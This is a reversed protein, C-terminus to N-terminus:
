NPLCLLNTQVKTFGKLWAEDDTIEIQGYEIDRITYNSDRLITMFERSRELKHEGWFAPSFEIIMTPRKTMLTSRLGQLVELESGETDIKIFDIHPLSELITDAPKLEIDLYEEKHNIFLSSNGMNNKNLYIRQTKVESSVGFPHLTIINSFNNEAISKTLQIQLKPLPEFTHVRGQHGVVSAAFLTHWGINGGIDVFVGDPKLHQKMVALIDLEYAGTIFIHSDIFGNAPDLAIKFNEGLVHVAKTTPERFKKRKTNRFSDIFPFLANRVVSYLGPFNNKLFIYLSSM